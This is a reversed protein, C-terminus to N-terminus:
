FQFNTKILEKVSKAGLDGDDRSRVAIKKSEVEKDGIVLVFPVKQMELDRIRKGLTERRLDLNVRVGSAKLQDVITTAYGNHRDAIPVVVAQVPALWVPFVGAYHEILISMFREISGMIAAHIMIPTEDHGDANTFSLGFRTPMNMDLQITAVQWERGLSDIGMFDIKPGYFAAEGIAESATTKKIKVVERLTNEMKDWTKADGLYKDPQSQDGLSLRAATKIGFKGYFDDVIDWIALIEDKIQDERCFVHADDQTIARVRSLGNLEGTQEDRYVFTTNAYRQPMEKYSWSKRAFIQTHHPCNMPKMAFEHGERTNIRFLEDKFKDWHGSKVYLDKKTIHPIEVKEYGKARRLSWVFDDLLDRVITGKPTWLPLGAGVLDSFTFLDLTVGLKRHDRKTAEDIQKLYQDLEEQTEFAVGYIRTLMQNKEDGKWYAGALHTLKFAGVQDTSELHPGACLDVFSNPQNPSELSYFSLEKDGLDKILEFKFPQDKEKALAEDRSLNFQRLSMKQKIVSRMENEIKILDDPSLPSEFLFDYYFGNEIVPGIGLKTKPYLNLVAAALCHSLTHRMKEIQSSMEKTKPTNTRIQKM